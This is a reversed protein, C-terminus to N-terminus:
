LSIRICKLFDMCWDFYCFNVKKFKAKIVTWSKVKLLDFVEIVDCKMNKVM